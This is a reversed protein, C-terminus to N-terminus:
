CKYRTSQDLVLVKCGEVCELAAVKVWDDMSRDGGDWEHTQRCTACGSNRDARIEEVGSRETM